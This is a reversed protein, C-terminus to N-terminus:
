TTQKRKLSEPVPTRRLLEKFDAHSVGFQEEAARRLAGCFYRGPNSANKKGVADACSWLWDASLTYRSLVVAKIVLDRDQDNHLPVAKNVQRCDSAIAPLDADPIEAPPEITKGGAGGKRNVSSVLRSTISEEERSEEGRGNSKTVDTVGGSKPTNRDRYERQREANTKPVKRLCAPENFELFNPFLLSNDGSERVWGVTLMAAGFGAFGAIGDVDSVTMPQMLADNDIVKCHSNVASWVRLLSCMTVDRLASETVCQLARETVSEDSPPLGGIGLADQGCAYILLGPYDPDYILESCLSLFRPHTWLEARMKIWDWAM